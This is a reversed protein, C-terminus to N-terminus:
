IEFNVDIVGIKKNWIEFTYAVILNDASYKKFAHYEFNKKNSTLNRIHLIRYKKLAFLDNWFRCPMIPLFKKDYTKIKM